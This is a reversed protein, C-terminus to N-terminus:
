LIERTFNEASPYCRFYTAVSSLSGASFFAVKRLEKKQCLSGTFTSRITASLGVKKRM